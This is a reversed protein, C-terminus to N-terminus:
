IKPGDHKDPTLEADNLEKELEKRDVNNRKIIFFILLLVLLVVVAILIYNM